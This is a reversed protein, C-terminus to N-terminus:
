WEFEFPAAQCRSEYHVKESFLTNFKLPQEDRRVASYVIIAYCYLTPKHM